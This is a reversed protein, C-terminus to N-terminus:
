ERFKIYKPITIKVLKGMQTQGGCQFLALKGYAASYDNLISEIMLKSAGYPNIPLQPESEVIPLKQPIGYTACSSPFVIKNLNNSRIAKLLSLTGGVNNEYYKAPKIVSEGVYAYAAFHM